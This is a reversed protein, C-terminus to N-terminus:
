GIWTRKFQASERVFRSKDLAGLFGALESPDFKQKLANLENARDTIWKNAEAKDNDNNEPDNNVTVSWSKLTSLYNDVKSTFQQAAQDSNVSGILSQHDEAVTDTIYNKLGKLQFVIQEANDSLMFMRSFERSSFGKIADDVMGNIQGIVTNNITHKNIHNITFSRLRNYAIIGDNNSGLFTPGSLQDDINKFYSMIYNIVPQTLGTNTDTSQALVKRVANLIQNASSLKGNPEKDVVQMMKVHKDLIDEFTAEPSDIDEMKHSGEPHADHVLDEGKEDTVGYEANAKKYQVFKSELEDAQKDFGSARLGTCLKVLNETLNGTPELDLKPAATKQLTPEEKIWGKDQAVKVLSRMTSSDEFKTHKFTM